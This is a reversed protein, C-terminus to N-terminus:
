PVLLAAPVVGIGDERRYAAPGMTVVITDLLRDGLREGLWRLQRVDDDAVTGALKVEYAVCRQDRRVLLGDVEHSGGHTRVHRHEVDAAQAYSRLSLAVLSEFLAGFLGGDRVAPM